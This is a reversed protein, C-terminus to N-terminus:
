GPSRGGGAPWALRVVFAETGAGDDLVDVFAELGQAEAAPVVEPLWARGPDTLLGVGRPALAQAFAAAVLEPLEHSFLVDSAWVHDFRDETPAGPARWDRTEYRVAGTLRNHALNRRLLAETDPHQDTALVDAGRRAAVMSPLALGCGLELVRAGPVGPTTAALTVLVRSSGWLAGFMPSLDERSRRDGWAGLTRYGEASAAEFSPLMDLRFAHGAIELTREVLPWRAPSGTSPLFRRPMGPFSGM